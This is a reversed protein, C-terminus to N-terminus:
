PVRYIEGTYPSSIEEGSVKDGADIVQSAPQGPEVYLGPRDTPILFPINRTAPGSSAADDDDEPSQNLEDILGSGGPDPSTNFQTGSEQSPAIAVDRTRTVVKGRQLNACSTALLALVLAFILSLTAKM